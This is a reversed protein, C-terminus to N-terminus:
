GTGWLLIMALSTANLAMHLAISPAARHTRNYLLGLALAFFFIPIPDPAIEKPLLHYKEVLMKILQSLGIQCGYLPVAIALFTIIGLRVDALIHKPAWGLDAATVGVRWHLWAVVFVITLFSAVSNCTLLLILNQVDEQPAEERFHQGAFFFSSLFIPMVALPLVRRLVPLRRRLNREINELWGQLLVRYLMEETIPAVVIGAICCLILSTWNKTALLQALPHATSMQEVSTKHSPESTELPWVYQAFHIVVIMVAIYFVIV